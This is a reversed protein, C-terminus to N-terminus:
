DGFALATSSGMPARSLLGLDVLGFESRRSRFIGGEGGVRGGKTQVMFVLLWRCHLGPRPAGSAGLSLQDGPFRAPSWGPRSLSRTAPTASHSMSPYSYNRHAVNAFSCRGVIINTGTEYLTHRSAQHSCNLLLFDQEEQDHGGCSHLLRRMSPLVTRPSAQLHHTIRQGLAM